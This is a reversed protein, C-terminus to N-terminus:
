KKKAKRAARNAKRRKAVRLRFARDEMQGAWRGTGPQKENTGKTM